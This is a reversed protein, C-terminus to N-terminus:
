RGQEAALKNTLADFEPFPRPNVTCGIRYRGDSTVVHWGAPTKSVVAQATFEPRFTANMNAKVCYYIDWQRTIRDQLVYPGALTAASTRYRGLLLGGKILATQALARAIMGRVLPEERQARQLAEESGPPKSDGSAANLCGGLAVPLMAVAVVRKAWGLGSM